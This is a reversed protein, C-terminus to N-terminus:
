QSARIDVNAPHFIDINAPEHNVGESISAPIVPEDLGVNCVYKSNVFRNQIKRKKRRTLVKDIASQLCVTVEEM